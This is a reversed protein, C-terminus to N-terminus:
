GQVASARTWSLKHRHTAKNNNNNLCYSSEGTGKRIKTIDYLFGPSGGGLTWQVRNEM